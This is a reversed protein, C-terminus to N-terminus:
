NSTTTKDKENIKWSCINFYNCHECAGYSPRPYYIKNDIGKILNKILRQYNLRQEHQLQLELSKGSQIHYVVPRIKLAEGMLERTVISTGLNARLLMTFDPKDQLSNIDFYVIEIYSEKKPPHRFVIMDIEDTIMSGGIVREVPFSVAVLEDYPNIFNEINVILSHADILAKTDDIKFSQNSTWISKYHLVRSSFFAMLKGIAIPKSLGKHQFYRIYSEKLAINIIYREDAGGPLAPKNISKYHYKLSCTSYICLDKLDYEKMVLKSVPNSM